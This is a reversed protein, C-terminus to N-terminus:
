IINNSINKYIKSVVRLIKPLLKRKFLMFFNQSLFRLKVHSQCKKEM